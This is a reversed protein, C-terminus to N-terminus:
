VQVTTESSAAVAQAPTYGQDRLTSAESAQLTTFGAQRWRGAEAAGFGRKSWDDAQDVDDDGFGAEIWPRAQKPTTTGPGAYQWRQAVRPRKVGADVWERAEIPSCHAAWRDAQKPTFQQNAWQTADAPAFGAARWAQEQGAPLSAFRGTLIGNRRAHDIAAPLDEEDPYDYWDPGVDLEAHRLSGNVGHYPLDHRGASDYAHTDDHAFLHSGASEEDRGLAGLRLQPNLQVLAHAYTYCGGQQWRSWEDTCYGREALEALGAPVPRACHLAIDSETHPPPAFQGGTPVGASVRSATM